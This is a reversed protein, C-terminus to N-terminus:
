KDTADRRNKETRVLLEENDVNIPTGHQRAQRKTIMRNVDQKTTVRWEFNLFTNATPTDTKKEKTVNSINSDKIQRIFIYFIHIIRLFIYFISLM